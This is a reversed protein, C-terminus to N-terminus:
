YVEFLAAAGMGAGVCMSVVGWRSQRRRGELLLHGAMRTGSVGFPHGISIAGGNVNLRDLPISLKRQCYLVQSAFAENIEWLDIDDVSLGFRKLLKPIAFVPGIGMEDPECGAVALGRFAGLPQLGRRAAEAAEMVVMAASGDSLQSANGATVSHAAGRVPQLALLSDLTTDLRNCTDQAVEVARRSTTNSLKDTVEMETAVRIIEDAFVGSAQARATRQQSVCSFSDQDQRTIGYRAAVIDATEIMPMYLAPKHELLWPDLVKAEEEPLTPKSRTGSVSEVGGAVAVDVGDTLIRGAVMAIAQLGSSCFRNITAGSVTVPLGARMAALRAVNKGTRGDPNACGLVVDDIAEGEVQARQVAAAISLAGLEPGPMVNFEGRLAKTLPTRAYSVIVAERM